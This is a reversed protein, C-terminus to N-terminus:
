LHGDYQYSRDDPLSKPNDNKCCAWPFIIFVVIVLIIVKIINGITWYKEEYMYEM